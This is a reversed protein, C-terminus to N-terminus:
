VKTSGSSVIRSSSSSTILIPALPCKKPSHRPFLRRHCLFRLLMMLRMGISREHLHIMEWCRRCFCCCELVEEKQWGFSDSTMALRPPPACCCWWWANGLLDRESSKAAVWGHSFCNFLEVIFFDVTWGGVFAADCSSWRMCSGSRRRCCCLFCGAELLKDLKRCFTSAPLFLAVVVATGIIATWAVISACCCCLDCRFLFAPTALLPIGSTEGRDLRIRGMCNNRCYDLLPRLWPRCHHYYRSHCYYGRRRQLIRWWWRICWHRRCVVVFRRVGCYRLRCYRCLQLALPQQIHCRTGQSLQRSRGAM